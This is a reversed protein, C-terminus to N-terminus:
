NRHARSQLSDRLRHARSQLSDRLRQGRERASDARRESVATISDAMRSAAESISDATRDAAEAMSDAAAEARADIVESRIDKAIASPVLLRAVYGGPEFSIKGVAETGAPTSDGHICAFQARHVELSHRQGGGTDIKALLACGELRRMDASDSLKVQLDVGSVHDPSKRRVVLRDFTGLRAGDLRFPVFVVPLSIPESTSAVGHVKHIAARGITIVGMGVAFIGLAGLIIKLWYDRM